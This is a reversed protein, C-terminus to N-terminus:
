RAVLAVVVAIMAAILIGVQWRLAVNLARAVETRVREVDAKTALHKLTAEIGTVRTDIGTVHGEIRTMREEMTSMGLANCM